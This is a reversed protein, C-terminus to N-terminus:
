SEAQMLAGAIQRLVPAASVNGYGGDEALVTVAYRPNSVPFFATVWGHCIEEGDEDFRGTQATSTKAGMPVHRPKGTFDSDAAAYCMLSRLYAATEASIGQSHHAPTERLVNRGDETIGRVLRVEPLTGDGAIACTMRTIQLPTATLIGQGFSFNAREAPLRLQQLTPLTGSSAVQGTTLPIEQGFGLAKATQRLATGSLRQSLQIFFPNCSNRMALPMTQRGHGQVDHCRFLQGEVSITGTCDWQFTDALGSDKACAATVLKFISGVPYAYLARNIMPSDPDQLAEELTDATYSPFSALGLIDGSSVEMVVICGKELRSGATECIRQVRADLTTFIGATPNEGYRILKGEGALASGSGDVSFTVSWRSDVSRLISDYDAELGAVGVGQSTYGILHQAPQRSSYRRPIQLVTVDPCDIGATDVQWVFPKGEEAKACFETPNPVHTLLAAIAEPTPSIVATCVSQENTLPVGNRDYITGSATGACCTYTGQKAATQVLDSRQALWALWAAAGCFCFVLLLRLVALRNRMHEM